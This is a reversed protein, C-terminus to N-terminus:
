NGQNGSFFRRYRYNCYRQNGGSLLTNADSYANLEDILHLSTEPLTYYGVRGSKKEEKITDLADGMIRQQMPTNDFAFDRSFALM